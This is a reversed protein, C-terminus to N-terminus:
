KKEKPRGAGRREQEYREIETEAIFYDRGRLEGVLRGAKMLRWVWQRKVGLRAAAEPITLM